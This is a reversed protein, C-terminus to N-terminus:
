CALSYLKPLVCSSWLSFSVPFKDGGDLADYEALSADRRAAQTLSQEWLGQACRHTIHVTMGNKIVRLTLDGM